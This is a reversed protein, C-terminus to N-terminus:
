KRGARSGALYAAKLETGIRVPDHWREVYERGRRGMGPLTGRDATMLRRLVDRITAPQADVVPLARRMDPPVFKLDAERIHAVVPKGLAMAEVALGGYWGALLQDVVIDASEIFRRAEVRPLNEVLVLEFDLGEAELASAADVLHRTGKVGRHSPAHVVRIRRRAGPPESPPVWERLDVSAYPLFRAHSPLVHLLDPNLAYIGDAYRGFLEIRARKRADSSESYYGPEVEHAFHVDFHTRCFDGQRADDGQFTVFIRKGARKLLPLDRLCILRKYFAIAQRLLEGTGSGPRPDAPCPLITAGFNFHIVDFHALARAVLAWRKLERRLPGDRERWLVEDADYGYPSRALTVCWSDLGLAREARALQPANGAV